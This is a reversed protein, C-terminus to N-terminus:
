SGGLALWADLLAEDGFVQQAPAREARGWLALLLAAAPGRWAVDGKAHERTLEYSDDTAKVLWEGHVDTCHVHLSGTPLSIGDRDIKRPIVIDFYEDIGDSALAGDFPPSLGVAQEADWRHLALEHCQRRLWAGVVKETRWLLWTPAALDATALTEVLAACGLVFYEVPDDDATLEPLASQDIAGGSKIVGDAWRQVWGMHGALDRVTWGPCAAVPARLPGMRLADAFRQGDSELQRLYDIDTMAAVSGISV